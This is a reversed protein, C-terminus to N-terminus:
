QRHVPARKTSRRRRLFTTAMMMLPVVAVAQGRDPATSGVSCGGTSHGQVTASEADGEEPMSAEAQVSADASASQASAEPLPAAGDDVGSCADCPGAAGSDVPVVTGNKPDGWGTMTSDIWSAYADTRTSVAIDVCGQDGYSTVGVIHGASDFTPGGSDGECTPELGTGVGCAQLGDAQAGDAEIHWTDRVRWDHTVTYKIGSLASKGADPDTIGYGVTKLEGLDSCQAGLDDRNFLLLAPEANGNAQTASSLHVLGIDNDTDAASTPFPSPVNPNYGPNVVQDARIYDGNQLLATECSEMTDNTTCRNNFIAFADINCGSSPLTGAALSQVDAQSTCLKLQPGGPGSFTGGAVLDTCHGATLVSHPGVLEGSCVAGVGCRCSAGSSCPQRTTIDMCTQLCTSTGNCDSPSLGVIYLLEIVSSDSSDLTGGIIASKVTGIRVGSETSPSSGCGISLGVLSAFVLTDRM